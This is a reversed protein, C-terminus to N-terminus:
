GVIGSSFGKRQFSVVEWKGLIVYKWRDDLAWSCHGYSHM